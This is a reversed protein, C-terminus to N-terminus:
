TTILATLAVVLTSFGLWWNYARETMRQWIFAAASGSTRLISGLGLFFILVYSLTAWLAYGISKLPVILAMWWPHVGIERWESIANWLQVFPYSLWHFLSHHSFLALALAAIALFFYGREPMVGTILREGVLAGTKGDYVLSRGDSQYVITEFAPIRATNHYVTRSTNLFVVGKLKSLTAFLWQLKGRLGLHEWGAAAVFVGALLSARNLLRVTGDPVSPVLQQLLPIGSSLDIDAWM